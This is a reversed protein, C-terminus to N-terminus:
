ITALAYLKREIDPAICDHWVSMIEEVTWADGETQQQACLTEMWADFLADSLQKMM